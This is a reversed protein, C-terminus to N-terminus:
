LAQFGDRFITDPLGFDLVLFDRNTTPVGYGIAWFHQRSVDVVLANIAEDAGGTAQAMFKGQSAFYRDLTGDANYAALAINTGGASTSIRASGAAVIRGWPMVAVAYAIDEGPGIPTTVIGSSGFNPDPIGGSDYRVLAFDARGDAAISSGAVVIKGDPQLAIAYAIDTGTGVPTRVIGTGASGFGTDPTGEANLRM